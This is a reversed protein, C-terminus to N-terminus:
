RESLDRGVPCTVGLTYAIPSTTRWVPVDLAVKKRGGHVTQWACVVYPETPDTSWKVGQEAVVWRPELVGVTTAVVSTTYTRSTVVTDTTPGTHGPAAVVTVAACAVGVAAISLARRVTLM